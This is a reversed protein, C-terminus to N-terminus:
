PQGSMAHLSLYYDDTMMCLQPSELANLLEDALFDGGDLAAHEMIKLQAVPQTCTHGHTYKDGCKFCLNNARRYEKLQRAKWLDSSSFSSKNDPKISFNKKHHGKLRDHLHEQIAALTAVQSVSDPLHM